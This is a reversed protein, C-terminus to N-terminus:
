ILWSTCYEEQVCEEEASIKYGKALMERNGRDKSWTFSELRAESKVM